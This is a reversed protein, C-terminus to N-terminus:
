DRMWVVVRVPLVGRGHQEEREQDPELATLARRRRASGEARQGRQAGAIVSEDAISAPTDVIHTNTRRAVPHPTVSPRARVAKDAQALVRLDQGDTRRLEKPHTHNEDSNTGRM